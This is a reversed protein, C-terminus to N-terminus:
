FTILVYLCFILSFMFGSFTCIRRLWHLLLLLSLNWSHRTILSVLGSGGGVVRVAVSKTLRDVLVLRRGRGDVQVFLLLM